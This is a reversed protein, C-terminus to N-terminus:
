ILVSSRIRGKSDLTEMKISRLVNTIDRMKWLQSVTKEVVYISRVYKSSFDVAEVMYKSTVISAVISTCFQFFFLMDHM